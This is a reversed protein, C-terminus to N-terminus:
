RKRMNNLVADSDCRCGFFGAQAQSKCRNIAENGYIKDISDTPGSQLAYSINQCLEPKKMQIADAYNPNYNSTNEVDTPNSFMVNYRPDDFDSDSIIAGNKADEYFYDPNQCYIDTALVDATIRDCRFRERMEAISIEDNSQTFLVFAGVIVVIMAALTYILKKHM